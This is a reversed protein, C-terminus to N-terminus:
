IHILSLSFEGNTFVNINKNSLQAKAIESENIENIVYETLDKTYWVGGYNSTTITEEKPKIIGVVELELADNLLNTVFEENDSNDIWLNGQKTYYDTNLLVKFKVELLEEYTYTLEELNTVEEGNLM